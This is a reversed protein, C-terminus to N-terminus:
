AQKLLTFCFFRLLKLNTESTEGTESGLQAGAHSEKQEAAEGQFVAARAESWFELGDALGAEQQDRSGIGAPTGTQRGTQKRRGARCDTEGNRRYGCKKREARIAPAM